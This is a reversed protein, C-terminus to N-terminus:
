DFVGTQLAPVSPLRNVMWRSLGAGVVAGVLAFLYVLGGLDDNGSTMILALIAGGIEGGIWLLATLAKYRGSPHGKKEAISGNKRCLYIIALIELM